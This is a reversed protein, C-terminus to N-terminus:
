VTKAKEVTEPFDTYGLIVMGIFGLIASILGTVLLVLAGNGIFLPTASPGPPAFGSASAGFIGIIAGAVAEIVVALILPKKAPILVGFITPEIIGFISPFASGIAKSKSTTTKSRVVLSLSIGLCVWAPLSCMGMVPDWGTLAINNLMIPVLFWHLGFICLLMYAPAIVIGCIIPSLDYLQTFGITLGNGVIEGIPGFILLTAPIMIALVLAPTIFGQLLEPMFRNIGREVFCAATVALLVPFLMNEYNINMVSLGLFNLGCQQSILGSMEPFILSMAILAHVYPECQFYKAINMALFVPLFYFCANSIAILVLYTHSTESLLGTAAILLVVGKLIGAASLVTIFPIFAGTIFEVLKNFCKTLLNAEKTISM